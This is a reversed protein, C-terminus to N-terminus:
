VKEGKENELEIGFVREVWERRAHYGGSALSHVIEAKEKLNEPMSYDLRFQVQGSSGYRYQELPQIIQRNVSEELARCDSELIDHRVNEQIQGRSFGSANGSSATQGLIVLAFLRDIYELWSQYESCNGGHGSLTQLESGETIVGCGDSGVKSLSALISSRINENDFDDQRIRAILFPIGFKELYRARDKMAYHKFFYLWLLPRLLGGRQPLATHSIHYHLIFQAPHFDTLPCIKGNAALLAPTGAPDFNWNAPHIKQFSHITGGGEGWLIAAGSYGFALAHLLHHLLSHIGARGLIEEVEAAVLPDKCQIRWDCALVAMIRTQLHAAAVPEKELIENYFWAQEMVAGSNADDTTRRIRGSSLKPSYMQDRCWSFEAFDVGKEDPLRCTQWSRIKKGSRISDNKTLKM